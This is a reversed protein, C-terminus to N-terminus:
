PQSRRRYTDPDPEASRKKGATGARKTGYNISIQKLPYLIKNKKLSHRVERARTKNAAPHSSDPSQWYRWSGNRHLFRTDPGARARVGGCDLPDHSDLEKKPCRGTSFKV